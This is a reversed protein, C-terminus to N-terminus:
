ATKNCVQEPVEYYDMMERKGKRKGFRNNIKKKVDKNKHLVCVLLNDVIKYDGVMVAPLNICARTNLQKAVLAADDSSTVM